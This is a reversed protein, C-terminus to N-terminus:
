VSGSRRWEATTWRRQRPSQVQRLGAPQQALLTFLQLEIASLLTESAWFGLGVQMIHEPTVSQVTKAHVDAELFFPGAAQVM